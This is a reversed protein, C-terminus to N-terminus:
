QQNKQGQKQAPASPQGKEGPGGRQAAQLQMQAMLAQQIYREHAQWHQIIASQIFPPLLEFTDSKMLAKHVRSHIMHDDFEQVQPLLEDPKPHSFLENEIRARREDADMEDFLGEAEGLNIARFAMRRITPDMMDIMGLQMANFVKEMEAAKSKPAMSGPIVVVNDNERLDAGKFYITDQVRDQGYQHLLRPETYHVAALRLLRQGVDEMGREFSRVTPGIVRDDQEQLLSLAVGSKVGSPAKAQTVDQQAGISQLDRVTADMDLQFLQHDVLATLPEPKAGPMNYEVVEGVQDNISQVGSGRLVAWKPNAMLDRVELMKSRTRNYERQPEILHEAMGM